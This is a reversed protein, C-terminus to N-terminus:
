PLYPCKLYVRDRSSPIRVFFTVKEVRIEKLFESKYNKEIKEVLFIKYDNIEEKEKGCKKDICM